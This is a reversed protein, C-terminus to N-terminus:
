TPLQGWAALAEGLPALERDTLEISYLSLTEPATLGLRKRQFAARWFVAFRADCIFACEFTADDWGEDLELSQSLRQDDTKPIYPEPVAWSAEAHTAIDFSELQVVLLARRDVTRAAFTIPYGRSTSYRLQDTPLQLVPFDDDDPIPVSRTWTLDANGFRGEAVKLLKPSLTKM